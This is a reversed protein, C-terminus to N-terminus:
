GALLLQQERIECCSRFLLNGTALGLHRQGPRVQSRSIHPFNKTASSGAPSPLIKMAILTFPPRDFGAAACFNAPAKM